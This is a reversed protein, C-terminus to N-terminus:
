QYQQLAGQSDHLRYLSQALVHKSFILDDDDDDDDNNNNDQQQDRQILLQQQCANKAKDYQHLRYHAYAQLSLSSETMMKLIQEYNGRHLECKLHTEQLVPILSPPLEDQRELLLMQCHSVADDFREEQACEQLEKLAHIWSSDTM